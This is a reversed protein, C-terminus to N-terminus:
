FKLHIIGACQHTANKIRYGILYEGKHWTDTKGPLLWIGMYGNTGQTVFEEIEVHEKVGPPYILNTFLEADNPGFGPYLSGETDTMCIVVFVKERNKKAADHYHVVKETFVKQM